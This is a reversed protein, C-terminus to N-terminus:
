AKQISTILGEAMRLDEQTTIKFNSPSGEVVGVAVGTVELLGSEDTARIGKDEALRYASQLDKKRCVQPTQALYLCSRDQSRIILGGDGVIKVTDQDKGEAFLFGLYRDGKPLPELMEGPKITTQLDTIGKVALAAKIGHIERLIGRKETPMMMVGKAKDILQTKEVNRGLASRLILEELSMGGKFELVKSCLGGISRAACELIYNGHDNIRLEIHVPGKSIGLAQL